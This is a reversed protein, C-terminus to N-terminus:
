VGDEGANNEKDRLANERERVREEREELQSEWNEYKEILANEYNVININGSTATVAFMGIVILLLIVSVTVSTFFWPKYDANKVKRIVKVKTQVPAGSDKDARERRGSAARPEKVPIAPIEQNNISPNVRLYEQLEYLFVYGVPTEFLGQRTMQCYVDYIMQPNSKDANKKIYRAGQWEKKAKEMMQANPFAFGGAEYPTEKM